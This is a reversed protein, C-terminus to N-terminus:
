LPKCKESPKKQPTFFEKLRIQPDLINSGLFFENCFLLFVVAVGQLKKMLRDAYIKVRSFGSAKEMTQFTAAQLRSADTASQNIIAHSLSTQFRLTM